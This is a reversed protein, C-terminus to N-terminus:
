GQPHCDACKGLIDAIGRAAHSNVTTLGSHCTFCHYSSTDGGVHCASCGDDSGGHTL